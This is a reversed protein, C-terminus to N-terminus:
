KEGAKNTGCSNTKCDSRVLAFETIPKSSHYSIFCAWLAPESGHRCGLWAPSPLAQWLLGTAACLHPAQNLPNIPPFWRKKRPSWSRQLELVRGDLEEQSAQELAALVYQTHPEERQLFVHAMQFFFIVNTWIAETLVKTLLPQHWLVPVIARKKNNWIFGVSDPQKHSGEAVDFTPRM